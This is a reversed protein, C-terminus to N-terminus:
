NSFKKCAQSTTKKAEVLLRPTGFQDPLPTLPLQDTSLEQALKTQDYGIEIWVRPLHGSLKDTLHEPTRTIIDRILQTGEQHVWLAQPDEWTRVSEELTQYDAQSIYPPNAVILDFTQRALAKFLDSPIFTANDIHNRQANQQALAIAAPNIDIGVVHSQPLAQALALAICGSGTCLDLIRLNNRTTTDLKHCQEILQSVWWETESRPILIPPVIALDLSLFPQNGLIYALPKHNHLHEDLLQQIAHWTTEEICEEARLILQTATYGTVLGVLERAIRTAEERSQYANALQKAAADIAWSIQYLAM